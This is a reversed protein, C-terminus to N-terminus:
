RSYAKLIPIGHYFSFHTFSANAPEALREPHENGLLLDVWLKITMGHSVVLVNGTADLDLDDMFSLLRQETDSYKEGGSVQWSDGFNIADKFYEPYDNVLKEIPQGDWQGYDFEILRPDITVTAQSGAILEATESARKLHSTFIHGFSLGTLKDKTLLAQERGKTTLPRDVKAGQMIHAANAGSQGHRILYLEM